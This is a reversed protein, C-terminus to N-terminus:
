VDIQPASPKEPKADITPPVEQNDTSRRGIQIKELVEDRPGVMQVSGNKLVLIKDVSKLLGPRQTIVISTIGEQQARLLARALAKEGMPDLNSNPEDLVVLQPNGYFARALGIRQKQGGSLPAGDVSIITEYGEHFGSIMNHVDAMEAARFILDDTADSRMRAINEKITAPFLQVDQPLYGITEGLQRPDWNRLDMRDIRINGATPSISGVLMKALTSKGAGSNGIIAMSEGPELQFTIGNLIVKKSPKPVFLVREVNVRGKPAPLRLREINLPSSALLGRIRGYASRAQILSKWGEITGEVPTLARSGIISGAIVMGGSIESDLALFAGWGLMTIQTALRVGKSVSAMIINRDQAIVQAKLSEATDRGWMMVSEPVMGMANIVQSNRSMADAKLNARTAFANARGFPVATLRQNIMAVVLLILIACFVIMGLQPHILFVAFLFLPAVPADFITLLTSGTIFNRVSQLDALAQFERSSGGLSAKAAAQMVPGGLRTELHVATRMLVFRRLMDLLVHFGLAGAVIVTLMILTDTSRSTLVRDAIQFLYIPIALVLINVALSFIFVVMLNRRCVKLGEAM